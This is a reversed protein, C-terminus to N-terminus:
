LEKKAGGGGRAGVSRNEEARLSACMHKICFVERGGEGEGKGRERGERGGLRGKGGGRGGM